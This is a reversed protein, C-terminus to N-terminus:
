PGSLAARKRACTSCEASTFRGPRRSSTSVGASRTCTHPDDDEGATHAARPEDLSQDIDDLRTLDGHDAVDTVVDFHEPQVDRRVQVRDQVRECPQVVLQAAPSARVLGPARQLGHAGESAFVPEPEPVEVEAQVEHAGLRQSAALRERRDRQPEGLREPDLRAQQGRRVVAEAGPERSRGTLERELLPEDGPPVPVLDVGNTELAFGLRRRSHELREVVRFESRTAGLLGYTEIPGM